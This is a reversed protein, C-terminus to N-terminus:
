NAMLVSLQNQMESADSRGYHFILDAKGDGNIDEMTEYKANKPVEAKQSLSRKAYANKGGPTALLVRIKDEGDSYVLDKVKDGNVDAVKMLPEGSRGSSLSFTLEVEQSVLPKASFSDKDDMNFILVDQDISGALLASIIQSIGLDFSSLIVEQKGDDSLDVLQFDSLTEEASIISSPSAPFELKGEKLQGLYFEYDNVRDLVGSSRTFRVAMDAIGDGNFDRIDEVKRHILQSQDLKNGDAEIIDWWNIGYIDDKIPIELALPNFQQKSQVFVQLAGKEVYVVDTKADQDMDIFFLEVDKYTLSNDEVELNAAIPLSQAYHRGCCDSLWFNYREFDPLLFDDIGDNNLDRAFDRQSLAAATNVLYMSTVTQVQMLTGAKASDVHQYQEIKDKSLFYLGQRGGTQPEGLDYAFLTNTLVLKDLLSFTEGGSAALGYIELIPQQADDRGLVIIEKGAEARVDAVMAAQSVKIDLIIKQQSFIDKEATAFAPMSLILTFFATITLPYGNNM